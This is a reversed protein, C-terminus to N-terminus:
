RMFYICSDYLLGFFRKKLVDKDPMQIVGENRLTKLFREYVALRNLALTVYFFGKHLLRYFWNVAPCFLLINYAPRSDNRQGLAANEPGLDCNNM